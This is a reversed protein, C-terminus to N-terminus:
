WGADDALHPRPSIQGADDHRAVRGYCMRTNLAQAARQARRNQRRKTQPAPLRAQPEIRGCSRGDGKGPGFGFGFSIGRPPEELAHYRPPNWYSPQHKELTEAVGPIPDRLQQKHEDPLLQRADDPGHMFACLSGRKCNAESCPSTKYFQPHYLQEKAGHAMPCAIGRPCRESYTLERSGTAISQQWHPCPRSTYGILPARRWDRYTHAYVCNEWDHPGGIPCWQTKFEHAIFDESPDSEEL